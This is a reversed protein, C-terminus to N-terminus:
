NHRRTGVTSKFLVNQTTTCWWLCSFVFWYSFFSRRPANQAIVSYFLL